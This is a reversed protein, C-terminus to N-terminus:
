ETPAPSVPRLSFLVRNIDEQSVKGNTNIETGILLDVEHDREDFADIKIVKAQGPAGEEFGRLREIQFSYLGSKATTIYIPKLMLLVSNAVMERPSLLLRLDRPTLNLIASRLAYNSHMVEDGLTVELNRHRKTAEEQMVRITDVGKSISIFQGESFYVIAITAYKKELKVASWPSEFDYGLYFFKEGTSRQITLNTLPTPVIWLEPKARVNWKTYLLGFIASGYFFVLICFLICLIMSPKLIRSINM